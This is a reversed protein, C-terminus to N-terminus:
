ANYLIWTPLLGQVRYTINKRVSVKLQKMRSAVVANLPIVLVLVAIGALVSPGLDQWLFFVALLIQFPASWLLNLNVALDM